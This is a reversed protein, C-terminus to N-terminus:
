LASAKRANTSTPRLTKVTRKKKQKGSRQIASPYYLDLRKQQAPYQTLQNDQNYKWAGPQQLSSIRNHVSDYTYQEQPLGLAQLATDPKADTLRGM